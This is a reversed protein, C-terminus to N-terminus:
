ISKVKEIIEHPYFPRGDYKLFTDLITVGTKEAILGRLQASYNCEINILYKANLLVQKVEETPFPNLWTIHLFNTNPLYKLAELIAGKNSGWSVITVEADEPGFLTPPKMDKQACTELKKMRKRMQTNRNDIEENSYGFQDHEDSNAVFHNGVGPVTRLSIGDEADRYRAYDNEEKTTFRGRDVEFHSSDFPEVSQHSELVHKDVLLVVPTQYRDALNFAQMSLNFCEEVDGAALVIRPFDGQHAHLVFRLDGQETWTPLGTAPAGRMGEIIVLPTETLGALGYGEAMLCFGGGSTAVMARAGGLSAGIAMNVASLEDEPQKYIYGYKEQYPAITHLINSTPTMPYIAAFTMGGAIAGLGIAENGTVVIQKTVKSKQKLIEHIKDAYNTEIYKFAKECALLNKQLIAENKHGFQEEVLDLLHQKNGGLLALAAGVAITNRMVFTGEVDRVIQLLPVEVKIVSDPLDSCEIKNEPDYLVISSEHLEHKHLNITEQNLAILFETSYFQSSVPETSISVQMVNHGGRILSPYETYDFTYYGSRTAVKSIVLGASMVGFGAEGGIKITFPNKSATLM